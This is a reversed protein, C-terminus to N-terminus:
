TRALAKQAVTTASAVKDSTGLVGIQYM